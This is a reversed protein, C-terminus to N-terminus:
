GGGVTILCQATGVLPLSTAANTSCCGTVTGFNLINPQIVQCYGTRAPDNVCFGNSLLSVTFGSSPVIGKCVNVATDLCYGTQCPVAGCWPIM